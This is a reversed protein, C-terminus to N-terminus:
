KIALARTPPSTHLGRKEGALEFRHLGSTSALLESDLLTHPHLPLGGNVLCAGSNNSDIYRHVGFADPASTLFKPASDCFGLRKLHRNFTESQFDRLLNQAAIIQLRRECSWGVSQFIGVVNFLWAHM